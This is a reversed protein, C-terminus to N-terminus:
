SFPNYGYEADEEKREKEKPPLKRKREEQIILEYDNTWGRNKLWNFPKQILTQKNQSLYKNYGEVGKILESQTVLKENILTSYLIFTKYEDIKLPYSNFFLNFNEKIEKINNNKIEKCEQKHGNVSENVTVNVTVDQYTDYNLITIIIRNEVEKKSVQKKSELTSLFRKVKERSWQWRDALGLISIGCDGRELSIIKGNKITMMSPKHNALLLLDVWAQGKTFPELLWLDNETLQRYLKIWGSKM